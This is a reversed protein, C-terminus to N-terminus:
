QPTFTLTQEVVTKPKKGSPSEMDVRVTHEGPSDGTKFAVLGALSIPIRHQESPVEPPTSPPLNVTITDVIRIASLAGDKKDELVTECFFAAALFPGGKKKTRRKGKTMDCSRKSSSKRPPRWQPRRLRESLDLRIM